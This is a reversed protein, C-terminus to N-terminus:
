TGPAVDDFAFRGDESARVSQGLELLWVRANAVPAGEDNEVRGRVSGTQQAFVASVTASLVFACVLARISLSM